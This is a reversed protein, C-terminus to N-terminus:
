KSWYKLLGVYGYKSFAKLHFNPIERIILIWLLSALNWGFRVHHPFNPTNIQCPVLSPVVLLSFPSDNDGVRILSFFCVIKKTFISSTVLCTGNHVFFTESNKELLKFIYGLRLLGLGLFNKVAFVSLQKFIQVKINEFGCSHRDPIM